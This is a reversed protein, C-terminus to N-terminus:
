GPTPDPLFILTGRSSYVMRQVACSYFLLLCAATLVVLVAWRLWRHRRHSFGSHRTGYRMTDAERFQKGWGIGHRRCNHM